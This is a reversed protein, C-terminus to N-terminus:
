VGTTPSWAASHARLRGVAEVVRDIARDVDEETNFRGVGFRLSARAAEDDLGM